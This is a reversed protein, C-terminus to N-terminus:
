GTPSAQNPVLKRLAAAYFEFRRWEGLAADKAANVFVAASPSPAQGAIVKTFQDIVSMFASADAVNVLSLEFDRRVDSLDVPAELWESLTVEAQRRQTIDTAIETVDLVLDAVDYINCYFHLHSLLFLAFLREDTAAVTRQRFYDDLIAMTPDHRCAKAIVDISELFYPIHELSLKSYSAWQHFLNRHLFVTKGGFAKKLASARGLTRVDTLVPIKDSNSAHEILSEVYAVEPDSLAGDIGNAPVYLDYAMSADYLKVGPGGGVLPLFELFYPATKPHKSTWNAYSLSPTGEGTLDSLTEHFIECYAMTTPLARAKAWLWTSGTRFGSHFFVPERQM